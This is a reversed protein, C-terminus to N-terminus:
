PNVEIGTRDVLSRFGSATFTALMAHRVSLTIRGDSQRIYAAAPVGEIARTADSNGITHRDIQTFGGATWNRLRLRQTGQPQNIRSEVEVDLTSAGTNAAEFEVRLDTVNPESATFGIQSQIRLYTDDSAELQGIGGGLHTGLVVTFGVIEAGTQPGESIRLNDAGVEWFQFIFFGTPDGYFYLVQAVNSMIDVWQPNQPANPGFEIYNWGAPLSGAQSPVDFDYSKWGEGELPINEQGIFYAGYDDDPDAPTFNDHILVLSLPRDGASFDVHFLILDVGLSTVQRSRYDGTFPSAVGLQSRLQPAFTDMDSAHLFFGPNGGSPEIAEVPAFYTWGGTNSGDDFTDVFIDAALAPALLMGGVAVCAAMAWVHIKKKM